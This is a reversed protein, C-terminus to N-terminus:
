VCNLLCFYFLVLLLLSMVKGVFSQITLAITKGITMYPHSLQVMFFAWRQLLTAKSSHHQLLSRLTRQVALLDIWDIRYFILGSCENSPSISASAGLVKAVEHLSSAWQFLCQHRFLPSPSLLSHPTQSADGVWHVHTQAFEPLYHLGSFGPTSCDMPNCLTPCFKFSFLLM